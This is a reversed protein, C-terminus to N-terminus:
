IRGAINRQNKAGPTFDLGGERELERGFSQGISESAHNIAIFLNADVEDQQMVRGLRFLEASNDFAGRGDEPDSIRARVRSLTRVCRGWSFQLRREVYIRLADVLDANETRSSINM